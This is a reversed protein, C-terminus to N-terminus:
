GDQSEMVKLGLRKKVEIYRKLLIKEHEKEEAMLQLFMERIEPQTELEAGRKFHNQSDKEKEIAEKLIEMLQREVEIM